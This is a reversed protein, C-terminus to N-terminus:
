LLFTPLSTVSKSITTSCNQQAKQFDHWVNTLNEFQTSVKNKYRWECVAREFRKVRIVVKDCTWRKMWALMKASMFMQFTQLRWSLILRKTHLETPLKLHKKKSFNNFTWCFRIPFKCVSHLLDQIAPLLCFLRFLHYIIKCKTQIRRPFTTFQLM